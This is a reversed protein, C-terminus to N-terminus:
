LNHVYLQQQQQQQNGKGIRAEVLTEGPKVRNLCLEGEIFSGLRGEKEEKPNETDTITLKGRIIKGQRTLMFESKKELLDLSSWTTSGMGCFLNTAMVVKMMTEVSATAMRTGLPLISYVMYM